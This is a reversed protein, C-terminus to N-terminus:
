IPTPPVGTTEHALKFREREGWEVGGGGGGGERERSGVMVASSTM